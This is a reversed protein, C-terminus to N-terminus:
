ESRKTYTAIGGTVYTEGNDSSMEMKWDFKEPTENYTTIKALLVRGDPSIEEGTMVTKDGDKFGEYYSMRAAMNDVWVSQYKGTVRDFTEYLFGEFVMGMMESKYDMVLLCDNLTLRYTAVGKSEMWVEGTDSMNFKQVVDWTGELWKLAKLEDTAGVPPMGEQASVVSALLLIATMLIAATGKRM